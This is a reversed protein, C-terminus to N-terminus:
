VAAHTRSDSTNNNNGFHFKYTVGGVEYIHTAYSHFLCHVSGVFWCPQSGVYKKRMLSLSKKSKTNTKERVSHTCVHSYSLDRTPQIVSHVPHTHTNHRCRRQWCCLSNWVSRSEVRFGNWKTNQENLLTAYFNRCRKEDLIAFNSAVRWM